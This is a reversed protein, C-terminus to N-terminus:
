VGLFKDLDDLTQPAAAAKDKTKPPGATRRRAVTHIAIARDLEEDTLEREIGQKRLEIIQRELDALTANELHRLSDPINSAM